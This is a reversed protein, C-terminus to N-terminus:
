QLSKTNKDGLYFHIYIHYYIIIYSLYTDHDIDNIYMSLIIVNIM